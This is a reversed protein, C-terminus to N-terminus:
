QAQPPSHTPATQLSCVPITYLRALLLRVLSSAPQVTSEDSLSLSSHQRQQSGPPSALRFLLRPHASLLRSSLSRRRDLRAIDKRPSALSSGLSRHLNAQKNTKGFLRVQLLLLHPFLFLSFTSAIQEKEDNHTSKSDKKTRLLAAPACVIALDFLRASLQHM